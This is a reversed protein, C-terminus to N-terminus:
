SAIRYCIVEMPPTEEEAAAGGFGGQMAVAAQVLGTIHIIRDKGLFILADNEGDGQCAISVQKTFNGQSNFVDYTQMIGAPQQYNSGAHLVWISGDDAIRLSTIVPESECLAIKANQGLQKLQADRAQNLLKMREASRPPTQMEREIVRELKTSSDYVNIVYQDRVPAVYVQGEPSVVWRNPAAFYQDKEDFDFNAFNFEFTGELYRAQEKGDPTFNALFATRKQGAPPMQMISVAALVLRSGRADGDLLTMLGTTAPDAGGITIDGAPSGDMNLKVIKGPFTQMVGVTGDPMFLFDLPLNVEGPGEGKRSLTKVLKGDPSFVQVQCLQTDLLYINGDPGVRGQTVLGFLTEEDDEGGLRWLEELKLTQKGESPEPGNKIHLVGDITVEQGARALQVGPVSLFLGAALVLVFAVLSRRALGAAGEASWSFRGCRWFNM